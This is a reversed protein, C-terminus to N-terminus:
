ACSRAQAGHLRAAVRRPAQAPREDRDGRELCLLRDVAESRTPGGPGYRRGTGGGPTAQLAVEVEGLEIRYGRVKVQGDIRGKYDINGDPLEVARDGTKYLRGGKEFPDELFREATLDDRNIYGRAVCAGGLYLEGEEGKRV